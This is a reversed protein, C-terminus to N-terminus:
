GRRSEARAGAQEDSRRADIRALVADSVGMGALAGATALVGAFFASGILTNLVPAMPLFFGIAASAVSTLTLFV